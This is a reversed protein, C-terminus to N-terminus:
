KPQPLSTLTQLAKKAFFSTYPIKEYRQIRPIAETAFLRELAEIANKQVRMDRDEELIRMLRHVVDPHKHQGLYFIALARLPPSSDELALLLAEQSLACPFHGLVHLAEIKDEINKSELKKRADRIKGFLPLSDQEPIAAMPPESKKKIQLINKALEQRLSIESAEDYIAQIKPLLSPQLLEPWTEVLHRWEQFWYVRSWVEKQTLGALCRSLYREKQLAENDLLEVELIKELASLRAAGEKDQLSFDGIVEFAQGSSLAKLFVVWEVKDQWTPPVLFLLYVIEHLKIKGYYVAEIKFHIMQGGRPLSIWKLPTGKAIIDARSLVDQGFQTLYKAQPSCLCFLSLYFFMTLFHIRGFFIM